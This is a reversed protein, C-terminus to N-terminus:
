SRNSVKFGSFTINQPYEIASVELIVLHTVARIAEDSILRFDQELFKNVLGLVHAKISFTESYPEVEVGRELRESYSAMLIAINPMLPSQIMWPRIAKMFMPPLNQGDISVYNPM